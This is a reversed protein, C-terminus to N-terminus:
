RKGERIMYVMIEEISADEANFVPNVRSREVLAEVGFMGERFAKVADEDVARFDERSCKIVGYRELLADRNESFLVKGEHIFTIYDCIKELDSIIHSSILVSRNGDQIFEQFIELIEERVVPDLGATAEDLILLRSDHSLAQAISLKMKMGKSFKRIRKDAPLKFREMYGRFTESCWTRYCSAMMRDLEKATMDEPFSCTDLVVGIHEKCAKDEPDFPRDFFGVTGGDQKVLGLMTKILTTKGAGNEGILGMIYGAPLCLDVDELKFDKYKKTIGALKIANEM